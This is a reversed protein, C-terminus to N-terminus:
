KQEARIRAIEDALEDISAFENYVASFLLYGLPDIKKLRTLVMKGIDVTKVETTKRNLLKLEIDDIVEDIQAQTIPRKKVAKIIGERLKTRDFDETRGSRKIVKLGISELREYTTFRKHCNLCERRRRIITSDSTDRKDVVQTKPSRCYPCVM